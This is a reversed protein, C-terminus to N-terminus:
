KKKFTVVECLSVFKEWAEIPAKYYEDFSDKLIQALM